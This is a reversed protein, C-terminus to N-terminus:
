IFGHKRAENVIDEDTGKELLFYERIQAKRKDITSISLNFHAPLSKTLVGKSLLVIIERNIEDLLTNKGSNAIEEIAETVTKTEYIEGEIIKEFAVLLEEASFDSKVLLGEPNIKKKLNYLLFGEAHSTLIIIKLERCKKRLLLALDEGSHIGKEEYPPLSLDLFVLDFDETSKIDSIITYADKCNLADTTKIQYGLSNFSLISKYGEIIMPHDDIMLIKLTKSM